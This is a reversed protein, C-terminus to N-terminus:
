VVELTLETYAYFMSKVRYSGYKDMIYSYRLTCHELVEGDKIIKITEVDMNMIMSHFIWYVSKM